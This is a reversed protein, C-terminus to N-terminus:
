IWVISKLFSFKIGRAALGDCIFSHDVWILSVMNTWLDKVARGILEIIMKQSIVKGDHGISGNRQMRDREWTIVIKDVYFEDYDVAALSTVTEEIGIKTPITHILLRNTHVNVGKNSKLDKVTIIYPRETPLIILPGRYLCAFKNPLSYYRM